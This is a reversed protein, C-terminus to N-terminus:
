IVNIRYGINTRLDFALKTYMDVNPEKASFPVDMHKFLSERNQKNFALVLSDNVQRTLIVFDTDNPITNPTCNRHYIVINTCNPKYVIHYKNDINDIINVNNNINNRIYEAYFTKGTYRSGIIIINKNNLLLPNFEGVDSRKYKVTTYYPEMGDEEMPMWDITSM